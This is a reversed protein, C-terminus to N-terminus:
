FYARPYLPYRNGGTRSAIATPCIVFKMEPGDKQKRAFRVGDHAFEPLTLRAATEQLGVTIAPPTVDSL